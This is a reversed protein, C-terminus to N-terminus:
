YEKCFAVLFSLSTGKNVKADDLLSQMVPEPLPGLKMNFVLATAIALKAKGEEDFVRAAQPAQM